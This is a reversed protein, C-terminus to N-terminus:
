KEAGGSWNRRFSSDWIKARIGPPPCAVELTASNSSEVTGVHLDWVELKVKFSADPTHEMINKNGSIEQFKEMDRRAVHFSKLHAVGKWNQGSYWLNQRLIYTRANAKMQVVKRRRGVM